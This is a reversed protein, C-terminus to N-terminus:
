AASPSSRSPALLTAHVRMSTRAPTSSGRSDVQTATRVLLLLTATRRRCCAHPQATVVNHHVTRLQAHSRVGHHNQHPCRRSVNPDGVYSRHSVYQGLSAIPAGILTLNACDISQSNRHGHGGGIACIDRWDLNGFDHHWPGDAASVNAEVSTSFGLIRSYEEMIGFLSHSPDDGSSRCVFYNHGHSAFRTSFQSRLSSFYKEPPMAVGRLLDFSVNLGTSQGFDCSLTHHHNTVFPLLVSPPSIVNQPFERSGHRIPNLCTHPLVCRM